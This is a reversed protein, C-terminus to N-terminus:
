TKIFNLDQYKRFGQSECFFKIQKKVFTDQEEFTTNNKMKELVVDDGHYSLYYLPTKSIESM